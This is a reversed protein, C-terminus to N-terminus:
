QCCLIVLAQGLVLGFDVVVPSFKIDITYIILNHM